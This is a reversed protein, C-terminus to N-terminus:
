PKGLLAKGKETEIYGSGEQRLFGMTVANQVTTSMGGIKVLNHSQVPGVVRSGHQTHLSELIGVVDEQNPAASHQFNDFDNQRSTSGDAHFSVRGNVESPDVRVPRPVFGLDKGKHEAALAKLQEKHEHDQVETKETM